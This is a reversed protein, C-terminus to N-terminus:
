NIVSGIFERGDLCNNLNSIRQGNLIIIKMKQKEAEQSAIPDFPINLGPQWSNGVIQRFKKWNITKLKKVKSFKRPDRDYVYNINSLNIVTKIQYKKALLVAVYDTSWGPKYGAVLIIKKNTNVSRNPNTIISSYALDLFITKLLQANLRTAKIGIWDRSISDIKALKTAASIYSRATKGGGIVLYFRHGKKTQEIIFKHFKQLFDINLGKDTVILSGGVSLVFTKPM